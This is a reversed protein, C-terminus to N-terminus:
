PMDGGEAAAAVAKYKGLMKNDCEADENIMSTPIKNVWKEPTLKLMLSALLVTSGIVIHAGWESKSLPVCGTISPFVNVLAYQVGFIGLFIILFYSNHFFSEFVNFDRKGIKRCNIMNLM